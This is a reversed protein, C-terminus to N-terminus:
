GRGGPRQRSPPPTWCRGPRRPSGTTTSAPRHPGHVRCGGHHHLVQAGWAAAAPSAAAPTRLQSTSAGPSASRAAAGGVRARSLAVLPTVSAHQRSCRLADLQRARLPSRPRYGVSPDSSWCLRGERAQPPANDDIGYACADRRLLVGLESVLAHALDEMLPSVAGSSGPDAVRSRPPATSLLHAQRPPRCTGSLSRLLPVGIDLVPAPTSFRRSVVRSSGGGPRHSTAGPWHCCSARRIQGRVCARGDIRRHRAQTRAAQRRAPRRRRLRQDGRPRPLRGAKRTRPLPRQHRVHHLKAGPALHRYRALVRHAASSRSSRSPSSLATRSSTTGGFPGAAKRARRRRPDVPPAGTAGAFATSRAGPRDDSGCRHHRAGRRDRRSGARRPDTTVDCTQSWRTTPDCASPIAGM